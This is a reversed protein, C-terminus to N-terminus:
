RWLDTGEVVWMLSAEQLLYFHSVLFQAVCLSHSVEYYETGSPFTNMVSSGELSLSSHPLSFPFILLWLHYIVVFFLKEFGVSSICM